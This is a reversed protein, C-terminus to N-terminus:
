RAPRRASTAHSGADAVTRAASPLTSSRAAGCVIATREIAQRRLDDETRGGVGGDVLGLPHAQLKGHADVGFRGARHSRAAARSTGSM